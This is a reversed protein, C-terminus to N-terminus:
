LSQIKFSDFRNLRISYSEVSELHHLFSAIKPLRLYNHHAKVKLKKVKLTM